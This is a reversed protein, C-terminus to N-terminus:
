RLTLPVPAAHLMTMQTVDLLREVDKAFACDAMRAAAAKAEEESRWEVVDAWSGQAADHLLTRSLFGPQERVWRELTEGLAVVESDAIGPRAKCVVVEVCKAESTRM